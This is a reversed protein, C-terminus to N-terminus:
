PQRPFRGHGRGPRSTSVTRRGHGRRQSSNRRRDEDGPAAASPSHIPLGLLEALESLATASRPRPEASNPANPEPAHKEIPVVAVPPDSLDDGAPAQVPLVSGLELVHFPGCKSPVLEGSNFTYNSYSRVILDFFPNREGRITRTTAEDLLPGARYCIASVVDALHLAGAEARPRLHRIVYSADRFLNREGEGFVNEYLRLTVQKQEDETLQAFEGCRARMVISM